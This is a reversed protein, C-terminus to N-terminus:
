KKDDFLGILEKLAKDVKRKNFMRVNCFGNENYVSILTGCGGSCRRQKKSRNKRRNIQYRETIKEKTALERCEVSCYIQYSVSPSFQNACWACVKM